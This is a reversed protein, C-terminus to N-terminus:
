NTLSELLDIGDYPFDVGELIQYNVQKTALDIEVNATKFGYGLGSIRWLYQQDGIFIVLQYFYGLEDEPVTPIYNSCSPTMEFYGSTDTIAFKDDCSSLLFVKADYVPVSNFFIMGTLAPSSYYIHKGESPAPTQCGAILLLTVLLYKKMFVSFRSVTVLNVLTLIIKM